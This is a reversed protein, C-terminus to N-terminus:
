RAWYTVGDYEVPTYDQQLERAAQEWDICTAPWRADDEIAGIDEAFQQAYDTFYSDRVLQVGYEWDELTEGEEALEQLPKLQLLIDAVALTDEEDRADALDSELDEIHFIVDRSDITDDTSQPFPPTYTM